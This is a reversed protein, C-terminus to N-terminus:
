LTLGFLFINQIWWVPITPFTALHQGPHWNVQYLMCYTQTAYITCKYIEFHEIIM